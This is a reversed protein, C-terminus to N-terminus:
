QQKRLYFNGLVLSDLGSCFYTHLAELPSNVLPQENINLSTNVLVGVGTQREFRSILDHYLPNVSREVSQIRSTGDIHVVGPIKQKGLETARCNVAMFPAVFANQFFDNQKEVIVSPCFPRYQERYKITANIRDKIAVNRPDALISRNGLARPGYEM